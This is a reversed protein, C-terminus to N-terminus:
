CTPVPFSTYVTAWLLLGCVTTWINTVYQDIKLVKQVPV